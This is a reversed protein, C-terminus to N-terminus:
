EKRGWLGYGVLSRLGHFKGFFFVPTPQWKRQWPIKGVWPNFGPRKHRRLQCASERGSAGNPVGWIIDAQSKKAKGKKKKQNAAMGPLMDQHQESETGAASPWAKWSHSPSLSGFPAQSAWDHDWSWLSETRWRIMPLVDKAVQCM